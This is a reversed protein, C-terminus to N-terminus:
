LILVIDIKRVVLEVGLPSLCICGIVKQLSNSKLFSKSSGKKWLIPIKQLM